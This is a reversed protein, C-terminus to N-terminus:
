QQFLNAANERSNLLHPERGLFGPKLNVETHFTFPGIRVNEDTEKDKDPDTEKWKNKLVPDTKM